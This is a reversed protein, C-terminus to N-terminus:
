SMTNLDNALAQEDYVTLNGDRLLSYYRRGAELAARKDGSRLAQDYDQKAKITYAKRKRDKRSGNILLFICIVLVILLFIAFGM